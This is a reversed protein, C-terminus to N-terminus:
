LHNTVYILTSGSLLETPCETPCEPNKLSEQNQFQLLM